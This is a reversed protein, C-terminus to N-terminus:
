RHRPALVSNLGAGAKEVHLLPLKFPTQTALAGKEDGTEQPSCKGLFGNTPQRRSSFSTTVFFPEETV